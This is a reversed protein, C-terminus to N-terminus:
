KPPIPPKESIPPNQSESKPKATCTESIHKVSSIDISASPTGPVNAETAKGKIQVEHGVHDSLQATNGTVQYATGAKDTLMYGGDSRSLCGQVTAQSASSPQNTQAQPYNQQAIAWISCLLLISMAVLAKEM